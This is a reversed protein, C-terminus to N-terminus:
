KHPAPPSDLVDTLEARLSRISLDVTGIELFSAVLRKIASAIFLNTAGTNLSTFYRV